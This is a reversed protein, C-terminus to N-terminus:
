PTGQVCGDDPSLAIFFSIECYQKNSIISESFAHYYKVIVIDDLIMRCNKKQRM